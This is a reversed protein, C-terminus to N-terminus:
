CMKVRMVPSKQRVLGDGATMRGDHGRWTSLEDIRILGAEKVAHAAANPAGAEATIATFAVGACFALAVGASARLWPTIERTAIPRRTTHYRSM